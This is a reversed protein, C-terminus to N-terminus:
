NLRGMASLQKEVQELGDAAELWEEEFKELRGTEDQLTRNLEAAKVYDNPDLEALKKELQALTNRLKHQDADLKEM